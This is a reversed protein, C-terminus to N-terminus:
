RILRQKMSTLLEPGALVVWLLLQLIAIIWHDTSLLVGVSILILCRAIYITDGITM